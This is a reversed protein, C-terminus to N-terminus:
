GLYAAQARVKSTSGGRHESPTRWIRSIRMAICPYHRRSNPNKGANSGSTQSSRWNVFKLRVSAFQCFCTPGLPCLDTLEFRGNRGTYPNRISLIGDFSPQASISFNMCSLLLKEATLVLKAAAADRLVSHQTRSHVPSVRLMSSAWRQARTLHCSKRGASGYCLVHTENVMWPGQRM